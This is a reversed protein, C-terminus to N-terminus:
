EVILVPNSQLNGEWFHMLKMGAMDANSTGAGDGQFQASVEYRGPKLKLEFEETGTSWFQDLRLILTYSSGVRLPVVYDDVRGGVAAYRKDSFYLEWKRGSGDRLSLRIRDPLQVKGNALMMGLNLSVDQEGMNRFVVEFEPTERQGTRLVSLSLQLGNTKAGWQRSEHKPSMPLGTAPDIQNSVNTIDPPSGLATSFCDSWGGSLVLALCFILKRNM